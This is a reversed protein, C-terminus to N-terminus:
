DGPWDKVAENFLEEKFADELIAICRKCDKITGYFIKNGQYDRVFGWGKPCGNTIIQYM